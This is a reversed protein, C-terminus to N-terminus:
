VLVMNGINNETIGSFYDAASVSYRKYWLFQGDKNIRCILGDRTSTSNAGTSSYGCITFDGNSNEIAAEAFQYNLLLLETSWIINLEQDLKIIVINEDSSKSNCIFLLENTSTKLITSVRFTNDFTKGKVINGDTDLKLISTTNDNIASLFIHDNLITMSNAYENGGNDYQKNWIQSYANFHILTLLIFSIFKILKM